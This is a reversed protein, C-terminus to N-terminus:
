QWSTPIYEAPLTFGTAAKSTVFFGTTTDFRLIVTMGRLPKAVGTNAFTAVMDCNPPNWQAVLSAVYKGSTASKDPVACTYVSPDQAVDVIITSKLGGLMNFAEAAQSKAINFQYNFLAIAALIGIIAMIILLEIMSYGKQFRAM